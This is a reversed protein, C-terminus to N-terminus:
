FYKNLSREYSILFDEALRLDPNKIDGINRFSFLELASKTIDNFCMLFLNIFIAHFLWTKPLNKIQTENISFITFYKKFKICKELHTFKHILKILYIFVALALIGM